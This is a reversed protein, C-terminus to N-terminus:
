RLQAMSLTLSKRLKNLSPSKEIHRNSYGSALWTTLTVVLLAALTAFDGLRNGTFHLTIGITMIHVLYTSYSEDGLKILASQVRAAPNIRSEFSLALFVIATALPLKLEPLSLLLTSCSLAVLLAALRASRINRGVLAHVKANAYLTALVLGSLFEYLIKRTAIESYFIDSPYAVPLLAIVVLCLITSRRSNIMLCIGLVTYFFMEFNLTWGVTLLPYDGIGAPNEHPLFFMSALLSQVTFDTFKFVEPFLVVCALMLASYFWYVPVIRFIRNLMFDSGSQDKKNASFFMVFGSLVFFLDVGFAGYKSFFWGFITEAKFSFFLQMFHHYVVMWAAIGRLMQLSYYRPQESCGAEDNREITM